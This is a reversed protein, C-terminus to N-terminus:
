KLSFLNILDNFNKMQSKYKEWDEQKIYIPLYKKEIPVSNVDSCWTVLRDIKRKDYVDERGKLEVIYTKKNDIKVFYDPYFDHINGDDGQYEIRFHVNYFNKAYSVIDDCSELFAAFELEFESDGIIKNFVSKKPILYKTNNVAIPKVDKLKIFNKVEATGKDKVTLSDIAKKFTSIITNKAEIESLNRM